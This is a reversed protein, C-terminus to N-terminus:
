YSANSVLKMFLKPNFDLPPEPPLCMMAFFVKFNNAHLTIKKVFSPLDHFILAGQSM